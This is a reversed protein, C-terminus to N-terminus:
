YVYRGWGKRRGSQEKVDRVMKSLEQLMDEDYNKLLLCSNPLFVGLEVVAVYWPRTVPRWYIQCIIQYWSIKHGFWPQIMIVLLWCWEVIISNTQLRWGNLSLCVLLCPFIPFFQPLFRLSPHPQRLWDSPRMDALKQVWMERTTSRATTRFM